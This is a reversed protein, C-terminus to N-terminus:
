CDFELGDSFAIIPSEHGFQLQIIKETTLGWQHTM